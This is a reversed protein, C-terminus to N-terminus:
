AYLALDEAHRALSLLCILGVLVPVSICRSSGPQAKTRVVRMLFRYPKSCTEIIAMVSFCLTYVGFGFM